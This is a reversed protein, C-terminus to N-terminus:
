ENALELELPHLIQEYEYKDLVKVWMDGYDFRTIVGVDGRGFDHGYFSFTSDTLVVVEDGIKFVTM